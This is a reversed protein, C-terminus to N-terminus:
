ERYDTLRAYIEKIESKEDIGVYLSSRINKKKYADEGNDSVELEKSKVEKEHEKLQTLAITLNEVQVLEGLKKLLPEVNESQFASSEGYNSLTITQDILNAQKKEPLYHYESDIYAFSQMTDGQEYPYFGRVQLKNEKADITYTVTGKAGTDTLLEEDLIAETKKTLTSLSVSFKEKLITEAEEKSLDSYEFVGFPKTREARWLLEQSKKPLAKEKKCGSILLIPLLCVILLTMVRIRRNM